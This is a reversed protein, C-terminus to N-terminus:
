KVFNKIIEIENSTKPIEDFEKFNIDIEQSDVPNILYKKIKNLDSNSLKGEIIYINATKIKPECKPNILKICQECSDARQDFQGPLYSVAFAYANTPVVFKNLYVLDVQPESFISNISKKFTIQDVDGVLYKKILRINTISEVNLNSKIDNFIEKAENSFNHKKEVFIIKNNAQM